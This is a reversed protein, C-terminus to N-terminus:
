TISEALWIVFYNLVEKIRDGIKVMSDSGTLIGHLLVVPKYAHTASIVTFVIWLLLVDKTKM